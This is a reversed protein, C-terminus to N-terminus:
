TPVVYILLVGFALCVQASFYSGLVIAQASVFPTRFRNLALVTDSLAFALAGAALLFSGVSHLFFHLELALWVMLTVISIYVLVPMALRGLRPRLLWFLVGGWATLPLMTVYRPWLDFQHLLDYFAAVYFLHAVLFALLGALFRHPKILLVDGAASFGLAAAFVPGLFGSVEATLVVPLMLLAPLPKFLYKQWELQRYDCVIAVVGAFLAAALLLSYM